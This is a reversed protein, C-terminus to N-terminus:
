VEDAEKCLVTNGIEVRSQFREWKRCVLDGFAWINAVRDVELTPQHLTAVALNPISFLLGWRLLVLDENVAEDSRYPEGLYCRRSVMDSVRKAYSRSRWNHLFPM